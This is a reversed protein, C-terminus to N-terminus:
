SAAASATEIRPDAAGTRRGDKDVAIMALPGWGGQFAAVREVRHGRRALGDVVQEPMRDEVSLTPSELMPGELGSSELTWRPLEQAHAPTEELHLLHCAVQLLLQPQWHGGRTGLLLELRGNRIWLTPSLTHFPRKGAGLENPHGSILNFGAGRNQLFVGTDGASLGSGIGAYNSQILSVGMGQRDITCLYTTGPPAASPQAWSAAAEPTIMGLRPGLREPSVLEGPPLPASAPDSVLDDREWAVARYAEVLCHLYAPDGFDKPPGLQEVLWAAALTLYGQSNPPVTWARREFVDLGLPEVWEASSRALDEPTIRGSTAATIAKGVGGQYFAHRGAEAVERLTAGLDPRRIIQGIGPPRGEPYLHTASPQSAILPGIARLSRALESSAPFGDMALRIAPELLEGLALRGFREGLAEWGDVCGPVTVSEPGRYPMELHGDDRLRQADAGSGARGSSNLVHPEPEGPLHVLAFLDGGPGCATPLVVSGVANAAIAGDVANGGNSMVELAVRTALDHHTVAVDADGSAVSTM